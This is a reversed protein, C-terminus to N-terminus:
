NEPAGQELWCNLKSLEDQSLQAAGTQPMDKLVFVRNHIKGNDAAAKLDVYLSYNGPGIGGYTHCSVCYTNVIPKIDTEYYITSTCGAPLSDVKKFTCSTFFVAFVLVLISFKKM